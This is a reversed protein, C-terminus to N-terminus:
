GVKLLIFVNFEPWTTPLDRDVGVPKAMTLGKMPLTLPQGDYAGSLVPAGFFDQANRVEFRDGQRLVKSVDVQVTDKLDWNYVIINARGPEYANPRIIIKVGTPKTTLYTNNSYV